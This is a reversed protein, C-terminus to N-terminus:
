ITGSTILLSPLAFQGCTPHLGQYSPPAPRQPLLACCQWFAKFCPGRFVTNKASVSLDNNLIQSAMTVVASAPWTREILSTRARLQSAVLAKCVM